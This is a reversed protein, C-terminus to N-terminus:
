KSRICFEHKSKLKEDPLNKIVSEFDTYYILLVKIKNQLNKFELINKVKEPLVPIAKDHELYYDCFEIHQNV